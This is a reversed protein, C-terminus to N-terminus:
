EEGGVSAVPLTKTSPLCLEYEKLTDVQSAGFQNNVFLELVKQHKAQGRAAKAQYCMLHDTHMEAGPDEGNKDVPACLRTPKKIDYLTPQNFQDVVQMQLGRPFRGAEESMKVAHCNYHDVNHQASDPAPVPGAESKATPVLLQYLDPRVTDVVLEGGPHLQNTISLNKAVPKVQSPETRTLKTQYAELHTDGDLNVEAGATAPNCLAVPKKVDVLLSSAALDTRDTLTAQLGKPFKNPVCFDTVEPTGGCDDEDDCSAGPNPSGESCLNGKTAKTQYCMFPGLPTGPDTITVTDTSPSGITYAANTDLTLEVTEDGETLNDVMPTITLTTSSMNAPITVFTSIGQYDGSNSASGGITFYVFLDATQDGGSRTFTFTGTDVGAESAAGDTAELTVTSLGGGGGVALTPLALLATLTFLSAFKRALVGTRWPKRSVNM